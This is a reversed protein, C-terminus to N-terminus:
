CRGNRCVMMQEGFGKQGRVWRTGGYVQPTAQFGGQAQQLHIQFPIGQIKQEVHM